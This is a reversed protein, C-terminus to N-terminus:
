TRPATASWRSSPCVGPSGAAAATSAPVGNERAKKTAARATERRRREFHRSVHHSEYMSSDMAMPKDPRRARKPRSRKRPQDWQAMLDLMSSALAPKMFRDFARSLTNHDPAKQLAIEALWSPSDVLLAEMGRYSKKQHERLVLCAFLQPQTFDKRSFRSAYPPLVQQALGYALKLVKRPSKSTIM